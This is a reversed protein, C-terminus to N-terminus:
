TSSKSIFEALGKDALGKPSPISELILVNTLLLKYPFDGKFINKNAWFNCYANTISMRFCHSKLM